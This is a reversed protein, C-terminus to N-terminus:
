QSGIRSRRKCDRWQRTHCKRVGVRRGRGVQSRRHCRQHPPYSVSEVLIFCPQRGWSSVLIGALLTRCRSPCLHCVLVYKRGRQREVLVTDILAFLCWPVNLVSHLWYADTEVAHHKDIFSFSKSGSWLMPPNRLASCTHTSSARLPCVRTTSTCWKQECTLSIPMSPLNIATILDRDTIRSQHTTQHRM